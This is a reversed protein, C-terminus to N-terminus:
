ESFRMDGVFLIDLVVADGVAAYSKAVKDRVQDLAAADSFEFGADPQIHVLVNLTTGFKMVRIRYDAIPYDQVAENFLNDLDDLLAQEPAYGILDAINDRLIRLPAPLAIAVILLVLAPDVYNSYQQFETGQMFYGATFALFVAASMLTDVYWSEADVTVLVSNTRKAARRFILALVGCSSMAVAGYVVAIGAQLERGGSLLAEVGAAAAAVCLLVMLLAKVVNLMPAFHAYGFHFHEDDPRQVLAAVKLTLLSLIFGIGSFIGDLLIAESGTLFFFFIGSVAMVFAGIVSLKLARQEQQKQDNESM